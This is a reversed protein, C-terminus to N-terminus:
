TGVLIGCGQWGVAGGEPTLPAHKDLIDKKKEREGHRLLIVSVKM